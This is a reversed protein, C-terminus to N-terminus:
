PAFVSKWCSLQPARCWLGSRPGFQRFGGSCRPQLGESHGEPRVPWLLPNSFGPQFETLIGHAQRARGEQHTVSSGWQLRCHGHGWPGSTGWWGGCRGGWPPWSGASVHAGRFAASLRPRGEGMWGESRPHLSERPGPMKFFILAGM